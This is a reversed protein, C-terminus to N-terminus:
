IQERFFVYSIMQTKGTANYTYKEVSPRWKVCESYPLHCPIDGVLKEHDFRRRSRPDNLMLNVILVTQGNCLLMTESALKVGAIHDAFCTTDLYIMDPQFDPYSRIVDIWSGRHWHATPHQQRNYAIIGIEVGKKNVDLDVGHFQEPILLGDNTLQVIESGDSKPQYNCLTWYQRQISRRGTLHRYIEANWKRAEIKYNLNSYDPQM